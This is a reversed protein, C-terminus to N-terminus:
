GRPRRPRRRVFSREAEARAREESPYIDLCTNRITGDGNSTVRAVIPVGEALLALPNRRAAVRAAKQQRREIRQQARLRFREAPTMADWTAQRAAREVRRAVRLRTLEILRDAESLGALNPREALTRLDNVTLTQRPVTISAGDALTLTVTEGSAVVNKVTSATVTCEKHRRITDHWPTAGALASGLALVMALGATAVRGRRLLSIGLLLLLGGLLLLAWQGLTPIPEAGAQQALATVTPDSAAATDPDDSLTAGSRAATVTGQSSVQTGSDITEQWTVTVTEGASVVGVEIQVPSESTVTGKSTTVSGPVLTTNTPVDCTFVLATDGCSGAPLMITTTYELTDGISAGVPAVDAVVADTLTAAVAVTPAASLFDSFDVAGKTANENDDYIHADITPADTTGWYNFRAALPAEDWNLLDFSSNGTLVNNGPSSRNGGGFDAPPDDQIDQTAGYENGTMTNCAVLIGNSGLGYSTVGLGSQGNDQLVNDTIRADLTNSTQGSFYLAIGDNDAGTVTNGSVLVTVDTANQSGFSVVPSAAIGSSGAGTVTNGALTVDLTGTGSYSMLYETLYIGQYTSSPGTITNNSITIAWDLGTVGQFQNFGLGIGGGGADTIANGSITMDSVFRGNDINTIGVLVGFNAPATIVNDTISPSFRNEESSTSVSIMQPLSLQVANSRTGTMTNGSITPAYAVNGDVGWYPARLYFNAETASMTPNGRLVPAFTFNGSGGDMWSSADLNCGDTATLSNNSITPSFTVDGGPQWWFGNVVINAAGSLTNGSITPNVALGPTGDAAVLFSVDAGTTSSSQNNTVSGAVTGATAGNLDYTVPYPCTSFTNADIAPSFTDAGGGPGPDVLVAEYTRYFTNTDITPSCTSASADVGVLAIGTEQYGTESLFYNHDIRPSLTQDALDLKIFVNGNAHAGQSLIVGALRTATSLPSTGDNHFIMGTPSRIEVRPYAFGLAKWDPDGIIAVGDKLALPFTEGSSQQCISFLAINITDGSIAQNLAYTLTGCPSLQSQCNGTDSGSVSEVYLEAAWTAPITVACLTLTVIVKTLSIKTSYRHSCSWVSSVGM